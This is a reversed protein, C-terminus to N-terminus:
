KKINKNKFNLNLFGFGNKFLNLFSINKSEVAHM